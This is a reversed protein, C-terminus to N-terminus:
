GLSDIPSRELKELRQALQGWAQACERALTAVNQSCHSPVADVIEAVSSHVSLLRLLQRGNKTYRLSPDRTLQRWSSTVDVGSAADDAATAEPGAPTNAGTARGAQGAPVAPDGRLVRRRVDAVTGLSLGTEKAIERITADPRAAMIEAAKRRGDATSSPRVRGDRGVRSNSQASQETSCRVAAVTHASVGVIAAIARDSLDPCLGLLRGAAARRDAATLPLGHTNNAKVSLIFAAEPSGDFLTVQITEDGRLSAAKLRHMGDIVRMTDTHVIIPPMSLESDAILRVHEESIGDLRILDAPLLQDIEVRIVQGIFDDGPVLGNESSVSLVSVM